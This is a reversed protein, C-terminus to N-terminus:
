VIENFTKSKVIESLKLQKDQRTDLLVELMRTRASGTMKSGKTEYVIRKKLYNREVGM